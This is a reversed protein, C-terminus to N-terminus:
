NYRSGFYSCIQMQRRININEHVPHFKVKAKVYINKTTLNRNMKTFSLHLNDVFVVVDQGEIIHFYFEM